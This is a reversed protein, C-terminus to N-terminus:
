AQEPQIGACCASPKQIDHLVASYWHVDSRGDPVVPNFGVTAGSSLGGNRSLDTLKQAKL